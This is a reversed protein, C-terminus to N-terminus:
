FEIISQLGSILELFGQLNIIAFFIFYLKKLKKLKDFKM